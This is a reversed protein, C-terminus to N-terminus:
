KSTLNSVDRGKEELNLLSESIDAAVPCGSVLNYLESRDPDQDFPNLFQTTLDEM